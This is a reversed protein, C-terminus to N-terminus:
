QLKFAAVAADYRGPSLVGPNYQAPTDEVEYFGGVVFNSGMIPDLAVEGTPTTFGASGDSAVALVIADGSNTDIPGPRATTDGSGSDNGSVPAFADVANNPDLGVWDSIAMFLRDDSNSFTFTVDASSGEAVTYWIEVDIAAWSGAVLTWTSGVGSPIAGMADSDAGILM